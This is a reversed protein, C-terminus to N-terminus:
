RNIEYLTEWETKLKKYALEPNGSATVSRGVVIYDSGLKRAKLPTCVRNQDGALDGELRIGPTVTLFSEGCAKKIVPVELASSVVGDLGSDMSLKALSEVSDKMNLTINLENKIMEESSSTLQTVGICLPRKKGAGTGSELGAVAEQMMRRGGSAHVNILDVELRALGKMAKHVTNPIDHLKLDLFVRHGDEKLRDILSHGYRFYAEMGVKLFLEEGKLQTFLRDIEEDRSFDLALIITTDM